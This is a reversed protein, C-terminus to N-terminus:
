ARACTPRRRCPSESRPQRRVLPGFFGLESSTPTPWTATTTAPASCSSTRCESRHADQRRAQLPAATATPPRAPATSRASSTSRRHGGVCRGGPVSRIATRTACRTAESITTTGASTGVVPAARGRGRRHQRRCAEAPVLSLLRRRLVDAIADGQGLRQASVMAMKNDTTQPSTFTRNWGLDLLQVPAAATVGVFNDAGTFNLHFENGDGKVGLDAYMRRIEAESFDRFGDDQYGRRRRLRGLHRQARRRRRSGQIRGFSGYRSDIEVGQFNFGDRMSSRRRAASPTSVSSRTPASSRLATSPTIPCSTGTSSTASARTSACATRISPSARRRATSPRPRSAAISCIASISTARRTASSRARCRRSCCSRRRRCSRAISTPQGLGPRCRWPVQQDPDLQGAGAVDARHRHRHRRHGARTPQPPSSRRPRRAPAGAAVIKKKPPAQKQSRRPHPSLRSRFSRSRLFSTARPRLDAAAPPTGGGTTDQALVPGSISCAVCAFLAYASGWRM